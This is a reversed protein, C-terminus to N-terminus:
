GANGGAYDEYLSELTDVPPADGRKVLIRYGIALSEGAPITAEFFAGFRGYPRYASYVTDEPNDPHNMHQVSYERGDITHTQAAWRLGEESNIRDNSPNPTEFADEPFVYTATENDAVDNHPRYQIGAHEPDGLLEVDADGAALTTHFDIVVIADEIREPPERFTMSRTEEVVTEEEPTIWHNVSTLTSTSPFADIGEYATHVMREGGDFHWFDYSSGDVTLTDWGIFIGRHHDFKGTPGSTLLGDTAPDIVHLYTKYTEQRRSSDYAYMYRAVPGEPGVIDLHEGPENDLTFAPDPTPTPTGTPTATDPATTTDAQPATTTATDTPTPEATPTDGGDGGCGAIGAALL